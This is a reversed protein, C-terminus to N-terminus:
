RAETILVGTSNEDKTILITLSRQEKTFALTVMEEVTSEEGATWGQAPLERKFFAAVDSPADPSKFSITSGFSAQETVNPPVPIDTAPKQAECAQPLALRDVRNVDSLSYDWAIKGEALDGQALVAGIGAKGTAQASYKVLYGGEVAVWADGKVASFAGFSISKEDFVYHDATIGNVNEGRQLLRAREIGGVV